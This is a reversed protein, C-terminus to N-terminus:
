EFSKWRMKQICLPYLKIFLFPSYFVRFYLLGNIIRYCTWHYVDCLYCGIWRLCRKKVTIFIRLLWRRLEVRLTGDRVWLHGPFCCVARSVSVKEFIWSSFDGYSRMPFYFFDVDKTKRIHSKTIWHCNKKFKIHISKYDATQM